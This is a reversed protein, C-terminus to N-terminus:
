KKNYNKNVQEGVAIIKYESENVLSIQNLGVIITKGNINLWNETM